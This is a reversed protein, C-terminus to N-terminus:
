RPACYAVVAVGSNQRENSIKLESLAKSCVEMSPFASTEKGAVSWNSANFLVILVATTANMSVEGDCLWLDCGPLGSM